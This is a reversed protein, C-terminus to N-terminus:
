EQTYQKPVVGKNKVVWRALLVFMGIASLTGGVVLIDFVLYAGFWLQGGTGVVLVTWTILQWQKQHRSFGVLVLVLNILAAIFLVINM